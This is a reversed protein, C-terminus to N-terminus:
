MRARFGRVADVAVTLRGVLADAKPWLEADAANMSLTELEASLVAVADAKVLGAAGKLKHASAELGARDRSSLADVLGTVSPASSDLFQDVLGRLTAPDDGFLPALGSLDVPAHGDAPAVAAELAPQVPSGGGGHRALQAKLADLTVPKEMLADIGAQRARDLDAPEANGSIAIVPIAPRGTESEAARVAEALGYGDLEPMNIDTLIADHGRDRWADLAQAGDSATEVEHGLKAVQRATVKLNFPHDDVILIRM